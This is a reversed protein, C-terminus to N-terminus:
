KIGRETLNYIRVYEIGDIWIRKEPEQQSLYDLIKNHLNRQWQNVYIVAYDSSLFENWMSDTVVYPSTMYETHGKFYYSFSGIPYWSMVHLRKADPKENLYQAAQDLGEGWGVQM